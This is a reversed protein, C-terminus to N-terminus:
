EVEALAVDSQSPYSFTPLSQPLASNEALELLDPVEAATAYTAGAELNAQTYHLFQELTVVDIALPMFPHGQGCMESCYAVYTGEMGENVTFTVEQPHGPIADLTIAFNQQNFAHMLGDAPASIILRVPVGSPLVLRTNSDGLPDMRVAEGTATLRATGADYLSAINAEALFPLGNEADGGYTAYLDAVRESAQTVANDIFSSRESGRLNQAEAAAEAGLRAADELAEPTIDIPEMQWNYSALATLKVTYFPVQDRHMWWILPVSVLIILVVIFTPVATWVVELLTNHTFEAPKPNAARNYRLMVYLLLGLVLISIGFATAMLLGNHFAFISEARDTVPTPANLGWERVGPNVAQALVSPAALLGALLLSCRAGFGGRVLDVLSRLIFHM